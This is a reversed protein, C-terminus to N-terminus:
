VENKWIFLEEVKFISNGIDKGVIKVVDGQELFPLDEQIESVDLKWQQHQFDELVIDNQDVVSVVTGGLLGNRPQSWQDKSTYELSDYYPVVENLYGDIKEGVGFENMAAGLVVSFVSATVAVQLVSYRYGGKTHKIGLHTLFILFALVILWLYPITLLIHGVSVQDLYQQTEEDYDFFVFIMVAIAVAGLLVSISAVFWFVSRKLLFHWRPRPNLGSKDLERIVNESLKKDM